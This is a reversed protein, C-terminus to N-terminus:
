LSLPHLKSGDFFTTTAIGVIIKSREVHQHGRIAAENGDLRARLTTKTGINHFLLMPGNRRRRSGIHHGRVGFNM